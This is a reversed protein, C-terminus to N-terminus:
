SKKLLKSYLAKDHLLDISLGPYLPSDLFLHNFGALRCFIRLGSGLIEGNLSHCSIPIDYQKDLVDNHILQTVTLFINCSRVEKLPVSTYVALEVRNYLTKAPIFMGHLIDVGSEFKGVKILSGDMILEYSADLHNSNTCSLKLSCMDARIDTFGVCTIGKISWLRDALITKEETPYYKIQKLLQDYATM